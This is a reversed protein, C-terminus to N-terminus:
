GCAILRMGIAGKQATRKKKMNNVRPISLVTVRESAMGGFEIM